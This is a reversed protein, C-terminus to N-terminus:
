YPRQGPVNGPPDYECVVFPWGAGCLVSACGLRTSNRWVVQTYHKCEEKVCSNSAYDYNDKEGVWQGAAEWATFAGYGEATNEGYPSGEPRKRPICGSYKGTNAFDQAYSELKNDWSLPGVKVQARAENHITLFTTRDDQSLCSIPYPKFSFAITFILAISLKLSLGM